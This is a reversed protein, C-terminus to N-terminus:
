PESHSLRALDFPGQVGQCSFCGILIRRGPQFLRRRGGHTIMVAYTPQVSHAPPTNIAITFVSRASQGPPALSDHKVNIFAMLDPKSCFVCVHVCASVRGGRKIARAPTVTRRACRYAEDCPDASGLGRECVAQDDSCTRFNVKIHFIQPRAAWTRSPSFLHSTLQTQPRFTNAVHLSIFSLM